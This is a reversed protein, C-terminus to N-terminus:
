WLKTQQATFEYPFEDTVTDHRMSAAAECMQNLGGRDKHIEYDEVPVIPAECQALDSGDVAVILMTLLVGVVGLCSYLSLWYNILDHLMNSSYDLGSCSATGVRQALFCDPLLVLLM